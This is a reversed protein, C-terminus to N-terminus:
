EDAVHELGGKEDGEFSEEDDESAGDTSTAFVVAPDIKPLAGAAARVDLQGTVVDSTLSTRFEELLDIERRARAIEGHIRITQSEVFEVIDRQEALPPLAIRVGKVDALGLGQKTGGYQASRFQDQGPACWLALALYESMVQDGRPRVLAVHQNVYAKGLEQDVVAVNGTLAGTICVLIDDRRVRTRTGESGEPPRVRQTRTLDLRLSRGLNGSQLFLPGDDSYYEAWGRSGSTVFQVLRSVAVREWHNPVVGLFPNGSDTSPAGRLGRTVARDAVVRSQEVLLTILRRQLAIAQNIQQHAHALYTVIAEQEDVPPISLPIRRFRADSLDWQGIRVGDSAALYHAVYPRSRLLMHAYGANELALDYVYYAPSVVGDTPAVGMSGQWAKMKNVVLDGRRAVKYNTLDDPVVNHNEDGSSRVFVGRERAVSLLPLDPRNRESKQRLVSGMSRAAWHAPRLGAATHECEPYPELDRFM